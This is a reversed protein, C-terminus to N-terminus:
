PAVGRGGLRARARRAQQDAFRQLDFGILRANSPFSFLDFGAQDFEFAKAQRGFGLADWDYNFLLGIRPGTM